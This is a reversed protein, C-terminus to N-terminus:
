ENAYFEVRDEPLYTYSIHPFTMNQYVPYTPFRLKPGTNCICITCLRTFNRGGGGGRLLGADVGLNREQTTVRLTRQEIDNSFNRMACLNQGTVGTCGHNRRWQNILIKSVICLHWM